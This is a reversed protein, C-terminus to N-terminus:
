PLEKNLFKRKSFMLWFKNPSGDANFARDALRVALTERMQKLFAKLSETEVATKPATILTGLPWAPDGPLTLSSATSALVKLADAKSACKEVKKLYQHISLTLYILTRDAAGLVEFNRFLVNARFLKIAEDIQDEEASAPDLCPAPGRLRTKLPLVGMGCVQSTEKDRFASHYAPM